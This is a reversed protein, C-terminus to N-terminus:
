EHSPRVADKCWLRLELLTKNLSTTWEVRDEKTDASLLHKTITYSNTHKSVLTDRDSKSAPRSTQLEFTNPRACHIRSILKVERTICAKLDITGIPPKKKEDGPYKWFSLNGGHLVCWRRHWMGMGSCDDFMTLFGEAHTQSDTHCSMMMHIAGELPSLFPVKTLTCKKLQCSALSLRASGVMAFSNQRVTSHGSSSPGPSQPYRGGGQRFNSAGKFRKPTLSWGHKATAAKKSQVADLTACRGRMEYVLLEVTFDSGLDNLCVLNTFHICDGSIERTSLIQTAIVHEQCKVIVFFSHHIQDKGSDLAMLYQTKLPLRIDKITVSGRCPVIEEGDETVIVKPTTVPNKLYQIESLCAQRRQSAVVLLREAEIEEKTGHYEETAAILELAQSTQHIISQQASVEEMMMQIREKTSMKKAVLRKQDKPPGGQRQHYGGNSGKSSSASSVASSTSSSRPRSTSSPERVVSRSATERTVTRHTVTTPSLTKQQQQSRYSELSIPALSSAASICSDISGVSSSRRRRTRPAPRPNGEDQSSSSSTSNTIESINAYIPEMKDINYDWGSLDGKPTTSQTPPEAYRKLSEAKAKEEEMMAQEAEVILEDIDGLVDSINVESEDANETNKEDIVDLRDNTPFASRELTIPIIGTQEMEGQTQIPVIEDEETSYDEEVNSESVDADDNSEADMEEETEIEQEQSMEETDVHEEEPVSTSKPEEKTGHTGTGPAEWRTKILAMEKQREEQVKKNIANSQWNSQDAKLREQIRQAMAGVKPTTKVPSQRSSARGGGCGQELLAMAQVFKQSSGGRKAIPTNKTKIAQKVPSSRIAQQKVPSKKIPSNHKLPSLTVTTVAKKPSGRIIAQKRPSNIKPTAPTCSQPSPRKVPSATTIHTKGPSRAAPALKKAARPAPVPQDAPTNLEDESSNQRKTGVAVFLRGSLPTKPTKVPSHKNSQVTIITKLSASSLKSITDKSSGHVIKSPCKTISTSHWDYPISKFQAKGKGSPERQLMSAKEEYKTRKPPSPQTSPATTEVSSTQSLTTPSSRKAPFQTSDEASEQRKPPQWKRAAPKEKHFEHKPHDTDDEWNNINAALAAFRSRSSIPAKLAPAAPVGEEEEFDPRKPPIVNQPSDIETGCTSSANWVQRQEALRQLRNKVSPIAPTDPKLTMEARRGKVPSVRPEHNHIQNERLPVRAPTTTTKRPSMNSEAMKRALNERRARARELLKETLPDM